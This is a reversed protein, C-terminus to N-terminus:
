VKDATFLLWDDHFARRLQSVRGESIRFSDALDQTRTGMMMEDMISRNRESHSARWARFDLRFAAQDEPPTQTNDILANQLPNECPSEWDPLTACVFGHRAQAVPCLPDRPQKAHCLKRGSKVARTAYSAIATPFDRVDKGQTSLRKTWKFVLALTEAIKDERAHVCRDHRFAFHAHAVVNPM